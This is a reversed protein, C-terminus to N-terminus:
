SIAKGMGRRKLINQDAVDEWLDVKVCNSQADGHDSVTLLAKLRLLAAAELELEEVQFGFDAENFAQCHLKGTELLMVLAERDRKKLAVLLPKRGVFDAMNVDVLGTRLLMKVVESHGREIAWLLPTQGTNDQLNVDVSAMDLLIEIMEQPGKDIAWLLPTRGTNDHLNLDTSDIKLLMSVITRNGLLCSYFIATRGNIDKANVDVDGTDLLMRIITNNGCMSAYMLATRGDVDKASVDVMQTNLIMEVIDERDAEDMVYHDGVAHMLATRGKKDVKAVDRKGVSTTLLIALLDTILYKAALHIWTMGESADHEWALELSFQKRQRLSELNELWPVLFDEPNPLADLITGPDIENPRIDRIHHQWFRAAYDFFCPTDKSTSDVANKVGLYHICARALLLNASANMNEILLNLKGNQQSEALNRLGRGLFFEKVSQHILEVHEPGGISHRVEALGCSLAKLRKIMKKSDDIYTALNEYEQSTPYLKEGDVVLAWRLEDLTLSRRAFCLWRMLKLSEEKEDMGKVLKEYIGDLEEPVDRVSAAIFAVNHGAGELELVNDIVLRAWLFVGAASYIILDPVSSTRLCENTELRDHVYTSIDDENEKELCIKFEYNGGIIPYHRSSFCIHFKYDPSPIIKILSTFERALKVANKKGSEDLADVFLLVSRDKLLKSVSSRLYKELEKEQWQKVEDNRKQTEHWRSYNDVLDMLVEPHEALIQHLVSRFFGLPKNQLESGRDHFFFSAVFTRGRKITDDKEALSLAHRLLTSKGSGPNGNICLLGRSASMWRRFNDHSALWSFTGPHANDVDNRRQDMRDFALSKLCDKTM